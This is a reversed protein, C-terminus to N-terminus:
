MKHLEGTNWWDINVERNWDVENPILLNAMNCPRTIRIVFTRNVMLSWLYTDLIGKLRDGFGGCLDMDLAQDCRYMMYRKTDINNKHVAVAPDVVNYNDNFYDFMQNGYLQIINFLVLVTIVNRSNRKLIKNKLSRLYRLNIM